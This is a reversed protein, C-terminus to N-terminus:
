YVHVVIPVSVVNMYMLCQRILCYYRAVDAKFFVDCRLGIIYFLVTNFRIYKWKM